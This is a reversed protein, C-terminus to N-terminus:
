WAPELPFDGVSVELRLAVFYTEM